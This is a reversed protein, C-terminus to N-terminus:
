AGGLIARKADALEEDRRHYDCDNILKEAAALDDQPSKWPYPQERFFLRARHLHIDAMHLKMPGREAIEWAEDLDEQASEPGTRAGTLWRLWARTLLAEPLHTHESARWFEDVISLLLQKADDIFTQYVIAKFLAVRGLTLRTLAISTANRFDGSVIVLSDSARQNVRECVLNFEDDCQLPQEGTSNASCRMQLHWARREVSTLLHDCYQFGPIGYLQPRNEPPTPHRLSQQIIEANEFEKRARKTDGSKHLITALLALNDRRRYRKQKSAFAVASEGRMLADRLSGLVLYLDALNAVALSRDPADISNRISLAAEFPAVAEGLRGLAKLCIGAENLLWGQDKPLLVETVATWPKEFFAAVAGLQSGYAGLKRTSYLAGPGNTGKLIRTLLVSKFATPYEQAHCGHSVAQYLPQLDELTPQDGEKTTECLHEYLRRHAARWASLKQERLQKAFYERIHPHADLSVVTGAAERNVALLKAGELRTLAINRETDKLGVLPETLDPIADGLWLTALCDASAPRDFLGLLRLITVARLGKKNEEENKGGTEFWEVYADMVHFAHKPHDPIVVIEDDAEELKVLDRKRIDGNHAEHLYSGLLTVTLAHGKVDEVLKEFENVKESNEDGVELPLNRLESGNVGLSKLLHVGAARSLRTLKEEKVTKGMFARLDPLSYRTTVVCLGHSAAALCKLLAAIGQDKLEGPTPATPAYQLPELGDLILLSRRQGVIRALRQGKEFAGAPSAAFAKIEDEKPDGEAFFNLAEKLFLDSSAAVQDRTGQSYFSWAFAAACGPWDQHALEAAWKAVLSTKGEGGLAVFTLVHPRPKTSRVAKEWADSLLKMETERGILEAPAYKGIRSIDVPILEARSARRTEVLWDHLDATVKWALNDTNTFETVVHNRRLEAKLTDLKAAKAPDKERQDDTITSDGKFYIHCTLGKDRARRYEAETIGSGYRAGFIGIYFQSRDVEDLSVTHADDDCSGFYEMGILKTEKMRHLATEVAKREPQLDIWTSSVFIRIVDIM